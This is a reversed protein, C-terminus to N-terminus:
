APPHPQGYKLLEKFEEMDELQRFRVNGRLWSKAEPEIWVLQQLITIVEKHDTDVKHCMFRALWYLGLAYGKDHKGAIECNNRFSRMTEIADDIKFHFEADYRAKTISM